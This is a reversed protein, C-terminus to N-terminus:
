HATHCRTVAFGPFNKILARAYPKKPTKKDCATVGDCWLSRIMPDKNSPSCIVRDLGMTSSWNWQAPLLRMAHFHAIHPESRADRLLIRNRPSPGCEKRGDLTVHRWSTPPDLMSADFIAPCLVTGM